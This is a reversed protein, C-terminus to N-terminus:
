LRPGGLQSKVSFVKVSFVKEHFRVGSGSTEAACLYSEIGRDPEPASLQVSVTGFLFEASRQERASLASLASLSPMGRKGRPLLARPM